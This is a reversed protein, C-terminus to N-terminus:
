PKNERRGSLTTSVDGNGRDNRTFLSRDSQRWNVLRV